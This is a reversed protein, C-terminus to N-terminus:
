LFQERNRSGYSIWESQNTHAYSPWEGWITPKHRNNKRSVNWGSFTFEWSNAENALRQQFVTPGVWAWIFVILTSRNLKIVLKPPWNRKLNAHVLREVDYHSKMVRYSHPTKPCTNGVNQGTQSYNEEPKFTTSLKVNKTWILHIGNRTLNSFSFVLLM